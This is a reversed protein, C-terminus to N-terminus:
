SAMDSAEGPNAPPGPLTFYFTSGQDIVSEAWVRGGHKSIVRKVTALGIGTGEFESAPHLRQFPTFLKDAYAMNFGAGNDRVFFAPEGQITTHGVEIHARGTRLSFKWANGLLNELAIRLLKPDAWARLNPEVQTTVSHTRDNHALKTIEAQAMSSLDIDRQRLTARTVRSLLLIDDILQDMEAAGKSILQMHNRGRSDLQQAYDAKLNHILGSIARLPARLDHSVSYSFSELERYADELEATRQAVRSELERNLERIEQEARKRETIDQYTGMVGIIEGAANRLPVKTTELWITDGRPTTQPEEYHLKAEGSAIVAADDARYLEAQESWVLNRDDQGLIQKTEDLGADQAFLKNFGLYCLNRDKWFVRVPIADLVTQLMVAADLMDLQAKKRDTVDLRTGIMRRPQGTDSTEVIRGRDLVWRWEGGDHRIRYVAEFHHHGAKLHDNLAQRVADADDPHIGTFWDSMSIHANQQGDTDGSSRSPTLHIEDAVVNWDWLIGQANELALQLLTELEHKSAVVAGAPTRASWDSSTAAVTAGPASPRRWRSIPIYALPDRTRGIWLAAAFLGPLVILILAWAVGPQEAFWSSIM